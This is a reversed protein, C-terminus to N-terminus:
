LKLLDLKEKCIRERKWFEWLCISVNINGMPSLYWDILIKIYEIFSCSNIPLKGSNVIHRMDVWTM